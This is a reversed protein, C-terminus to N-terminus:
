LDTSYQVQTILLSPLSGAELLIPSVFRGFPACLPRLGVLLAWTTHIDCIVSGLFFLRSLMTVITQFLGLTRDSDQVFLTLTM